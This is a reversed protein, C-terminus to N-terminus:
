PLLLPLSLPPSSVDTCDFYDERGCCPGVFKDHVKGNHDIIVYAPHPFPATFFADRLQADRDDITLPQTESPKFDLKLM